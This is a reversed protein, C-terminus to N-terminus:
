LQPLDRRSLVLDHHKVSGDLPGLARRPAAVDNPWMYRWPWYSNPLEYVHFGAALLPRLVEAPDGTDERWWRPSLELLIEVDHRCKELFEAMGAIVQPEGGEVDIKVIRCRQVEEATLMADLTDGAVEAERSLGREEVATTLGMNSDPGTYIAITGPRDTVAMPIIRVSDEAANLELTQELQSRIRPSPEVAVVRGESGTAQVAEMTYYGVHAGVDIMGDGPILSRRMYATLDPEWIGFTFVYMQVLDPLRCRHHVGGGTVVDADLTGQFLMRLRLAAVVLGFLPVCMVTLLAKKWRPVRARGDQLMRLTASAPRVILSMALSRVTHRTRQAELSYAM